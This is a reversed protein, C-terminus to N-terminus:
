FQVWHELHHQVLASDMPIIGEGSRSTQSPKICGLTHNARLAALARQHSMRLSSGVPVGLDREAPSSEM